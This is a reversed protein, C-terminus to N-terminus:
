PARVLDPVQCGLALAVKELSIITINREGREIAGVYTRHLGSREALEEQSLELKKRRNRVNEAIIQLTSEHM